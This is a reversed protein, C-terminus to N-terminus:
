LKVFTSQYFKGASSVTIVYLGSSLDGVELSFNSSPNLSLNRVIKGQQDFIRLLVEEVPLNPFTFNLTNQVPNPYPAITSQGQRQLEIYTLFDTEFVTIWGEKA